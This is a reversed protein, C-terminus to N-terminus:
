KDTKKPAAKEAVAKRVAGGKPAKLQRFADITAQAINLKNKSGSIIKGNIDQLGALEICDRLASGAIVGRGPSPMIKVRASNYKSEVAHPISNTATLPIEFVNKKANKVAKEIALATDGAKGVGVGIKGKKNGLAMSVSFSFRRGGASVRTVRRIELIKQDFESRVRERRKPQRRNKKFERKPAAGRTGAKPAGDAVKDAAYGKPADAADKKPEAPTAKEEAKPAETTAEQVKTEETNNQLKEDSM